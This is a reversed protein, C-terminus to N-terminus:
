TSHRAAPTAALTEHPWHYSRAYNKVGYNVGYNVKFVSCLSKIQEFCHVHHFWTISYHTYYCHGNAHVHTYKITHTAMREHIYVICVYEENGGLGLVISKTCM